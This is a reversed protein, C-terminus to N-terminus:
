IHGGKPNALYSDLAQQSILVRRGIRKFKIKGSRLHKNLTQVTIHLKTAADERTLYITNDSQPMRNIKHIMETFSDRTAEKIFNSLDSLTLSTLILQETM